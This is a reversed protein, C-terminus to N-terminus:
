HIVNRGHVFYTNSNKQCLETKNVNGRYRNQIFDSYVFRHALDVYDSWPTITTNDLILQIAIDWSGIYKDSNELFEPEVTETIWRRFEFDGFNYLANGNIHRRFSYTAYDLNTFTDRLISGKMWCGKDADQSIKQLQTLWHQRCPWNDPEMWFVFEYDFSRMHFLKFFMHSAGSPYSDEEDTLDASIFKINAFESRHTSAAQKLNQLHVDGLDLDVRKNYYFILDIRDCYFNKKSTPPYILPDSWHQVLRTAENADKSTFPIVVAMRHCSKTSLEMKEGSNCNNSKLFTKAIVAVLLVTVFCQRLWLPVNSM